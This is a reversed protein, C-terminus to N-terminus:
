RAFYYDYAKEEECLNYTIDVYEPYYTGDKANLIMSQAEGKGVVRSLYLYRLM